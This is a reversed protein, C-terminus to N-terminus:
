AKGGRYRALADKAMNAYCLNPNSCHKHTERVVNDLAEVLGATERAEDKKATHLAKLAWLITGVKMEKSTCNQLSDYLGEAVNELDESPQPCFPCSAHHSKKYAYLIGEKMWSEGKDHECKVM